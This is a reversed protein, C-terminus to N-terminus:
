QIVVYGSVIQVRYGDFALLDEQSLYMPYSYQNGPVVKGADLTLTDIVKGDNTELTIELVLGEIKENVQLMVTCIVSKGDSSWGRNLQFFIDEQTVERTTERQTTTTTTTKKQIIIEYDCSVLSITAIMMLVVLLLSLVKKMINGKERLGPPYKPRIIVYKEYKTLLEM